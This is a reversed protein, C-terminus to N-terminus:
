LIGRQRCGCTGMPVKRRKNCQRTEAKKNEIFQNQSQITTTTPYDNFPQKQEKYDTNNAGYTVFLMEFVFMDAPTCIPSKIVGYSFQSERVLLGGYVYTHIYICIYLRATLMVYRESPELGPRLLM